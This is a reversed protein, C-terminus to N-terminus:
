GLGGLLSPALFLPVGPEPARLLLLGFAFLPQGPVEGPALPFSTAPRLSRKILRPRRHLLLHKLPTSHVGIRQRALLHGLTRNAAHVTAYLRLLLSNTM